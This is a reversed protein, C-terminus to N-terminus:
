SVKWQKELEIYVREANIDLPPHIKSVRVKANHIGNIEDMLELMRFAVHELLHHKEQMVRHVIACILEYNVTNKLLDTEAGRQLDTEVYVDVRFQGGKRREEAYYGHYAHFMMGEIAITGNNKINM